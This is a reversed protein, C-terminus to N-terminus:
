KAVFGKVSITIKSEKIFLTNKGNVSEINKLM